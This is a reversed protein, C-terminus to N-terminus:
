GYEAPAVYCKHDYYSSEMVYFDYNGVANIDVTQYRNSNYWSTGRNTFMYGVADEPIKVEYWDGSLTADVFGNITKNWWYAKVGLEPDSLNWSINSALQFRVTYDAKVTLPLLCLTMIALSFFRKM